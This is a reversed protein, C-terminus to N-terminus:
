QARRLRLDHSPAIGIDNNDLGKEFAKISQHVATPELFIETSGCWIM